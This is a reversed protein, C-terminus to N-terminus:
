QREAKRKQPQEREVCGIHCTSASVVVVTDGYIIPTRCIPCKGQTLRAVVRIGAPLRVEATM